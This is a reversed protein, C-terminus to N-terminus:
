RGRSPPRHSRHSEAPAVSEPRHRGIRGLHTVTFGEASKLGYGLARDFGIHACWILGLPLLWSQSPGSPEASAGLLLAGILPLTALAYSHALNYCWAGVRPGALYGLMSLDPVLFLAAAWGWSMEWHWYFVGALLLVALGEARLWVTAFSANM